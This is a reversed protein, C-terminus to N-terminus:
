WCRDVFFFQDCALKEECFYYNTLYGGLMGVLAGGHEAVLLCHTDPNQLFCAGLRRVKGADYPLFSYAGEAHMRAGMEVLPEVDAATATRILM